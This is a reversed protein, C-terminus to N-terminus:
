SIYIGTLLVFFIPAEIRNEKRYFSHAQWMDQKEILEKGEKSQIWSLFPKLNKNTNGKVYVAYFPSSIPYTDKRINKLARNLAMWGESSTNGQKEGDGAYLLPLFLRNCKGQKRIRCNGNRYRGHGSAVDKQPPSM